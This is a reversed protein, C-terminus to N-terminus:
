FTSCPDFLVSAMCDCVVFIVQSSLMLHRRKLDGLSLMVIPGVVQRGTAEVLNRQLLEWKDTVGATKTVVMVKAVVGELIVAEEM